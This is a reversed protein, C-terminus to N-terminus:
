PRYRNISSVTVENVFRSRWTQTKATPQYISRTSDAWSPLYSKPVMIAAGSCYDVERAYNYLPLMPDQFRGFNWASGDRWIIGGAEQLQGDPYVLKSGALGTQPLDHFTRLLADLWGDTVETDNNLFFLYEGRAAKAGINCSRIFGQNVPNSVLRIGGVHELTERSADPSCDDVIVVEFPAKPPHKAISALCKLTYEIKAYVPIVVTVIPASSTPLDIRVEIDHPIPAMAKRAATVALAPISGTPSGSLVLARPFLKVLFRRHLARARYGLPLSQYMTKAARLGGSLYRTAKQALPNLRSDWHNSQSIQRAFRAGSQSYRRAQTLPTSIWRRVERLPLTLRWSNSKRMSLLVDNTQALDTQIGLAWGGRRVTEETLERIQRDREFASQNLDHLQRDREAVSGELDAIQADRSALVEDLAFIKGDREALDVNLSAIQKTCAVLARNFHDLQSDKEAVRAERETVVQVLDAVRRDSRSMYELAPSMANLRNDIDKFEEEIPSVSVNNEGGSLRVLMRYARLVDPAAARDESLDKLDFQSHRLNRDLFESVYEQISPADPDFPLGLAKAMRQLQGSPNAMLLDFDIVIRPAGATELIAPLVHELWLYYSKEFDFGTRKQISQAVGKPNRIAIVYSPSIDLENFVTQWFPLLPATRPNKFGFTRDGIKTRMLEIARLKLLKLPESQFSEPPIRSLTHWDRKLATLLEINIDNIELDEFYGKDNDNLVPPMLNKGLPVGLASLGRTVASTGSRHMGLVVVLRSDLRNM